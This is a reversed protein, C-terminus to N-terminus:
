NHALPRRSAMSHTIADYSGPLSASTAPRFTEIIQAITPVYKRTHAPDNLTSGTVVFGRRGVTFYVQVQYLDRGINPQWTFYRYYAPLGAITAAGDEIATYNHFVTRLMRESLRAYTQPSIARPIDEVVVNVSAPNPGEPVTAVGLVAIMGSAPRVVQWDRPFDITFRGKADAISHMSSQADALGPAVISLLAIIIGFLLQSSRIVPIRRTQLFLHRCARPLLRWPCM